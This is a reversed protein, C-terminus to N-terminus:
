SVNEAAALPLNIIFHTLGATADREHYIRGGMDRVLKNVLALGLGEGKEKSTVFPEFIHDGLGAAIGPGSDSIRLEIPLRQPRGLRLARFTLGSVFRTRIAIHPSAAVECAQAANSLLNLVVQVLADENAQVPPLSPDFEETIPMETGARHAAVDWSQRARRIAAHLNVASNPLQNERGLSQMRDILGAIREVESAILGTLDAESEGLRKRLLKAAGGIAHLPNKIEHALIAPARSPAHGDEEGWEGQRADSLTVVRWGGPGGLPSHTLNALQPREGIRLAVGRATLQTEGTQLRERVREDGVAIHDLLPTGALRRVSVGLLTEAAPNAEQILGGRDVLLLAFLAGAIQERAGPPAGAAFDSM